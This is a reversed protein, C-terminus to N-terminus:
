LLRCRSVVQTSPAAVPWATIPRHQPQAPQPAPKRRRAYAYAHRARVGTRGHTPPSVWGTRAARVGDDPRSRRPRRTRPPPPRPPATRSRRTRPTPHRDITTRIPAHPQQTRVPPASRSPTAIRRPSRPSRARKGFPIVNSAARDGEADAVAAGAGARACRRRSSRPSARVDVSTNDGVDEDRRSAVVRPITRGPDAGRPKTPSM